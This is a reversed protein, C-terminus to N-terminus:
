LLVMNEEEYIPKAQHNLITNIADFTEPIQIHEQANEERGYMFVENQGRILFTGNCGKCAHKFQFIDPSNQSLYNKLNMLASVYTGGYM